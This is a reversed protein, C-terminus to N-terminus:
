EWKQGIGMLKLLKTGMEMPMEHSHHSDRMEWEWACRWEIDVSVMIYDSLDYKLAIICTAMIAKASM